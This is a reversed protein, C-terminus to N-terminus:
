WYPQGVVCLSVPRYVIRTGGRLQFTKDGKVDLNFGIRPSFLPKQNPLRLNDVDKGAGNTLPKGDPDFLTLNDNNQVTPSGTTFSGTFSGDGSINPSSFSFKDRFYVPVDMRIGYTIRLKETAQWEDQLYASAQGV